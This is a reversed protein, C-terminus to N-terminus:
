APSHSLRFQSSLIFYYHFRPAHFQSLPTWPNFPTSPSAFAGPNEARVHQRDPRRPRPAECRHDCVNAYRGLPPSQPWVSEKTATTRGKIGGSVGMVESVMVRKQARVYKECPMTEGLFQDELRHLCSGARSNM